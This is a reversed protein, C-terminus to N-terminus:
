VRYDSVWMRDITLGSEGTYEANFELKFTEPKEVSWASYSTHRNSDELQITQVSPTQNIPTGETYDTLPGSEPEDDEDSANWTLRPPDEDEGGGDGRVRFKISRSEYDPIAWAGSSSDPDEFYTDWIGDGNEYNVYWGDSTNEDSKFSNSSWRGGLENYDKDWGDNVHVMQYPDKTDVSLANEDGRHGNPSVAYVMLYTTSGPRLNRVTEFTDDSYITEVPDGLSCGYTGCVLPRIDIEYHDVDGSDPEDWQIEVSTDTLDPRYPNHGEIRINQVAGPGDSAQAAGAAGTALALGTGTMKLM